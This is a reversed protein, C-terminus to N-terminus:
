YHAFSRNVDFGIVYKSLAETKLKFEYVISKAWSPMQSEFYKIELIFHSKFLLRLGDESFLQNIEPFAKSRINKDLTVRVGPNHKGHYAEREYVVLCTPKLQRSKYHYLFRGADEIAKLPDQGNGRFLFPEVQGTELVEELHRYCIGARHKLIRSGSKKKIELVVEDAPDLRNYGRVRLKRRDMLGSLKEHYYGMDHSDFYISRVTYQYRGRKDEDSYLDPRVFGGFRSRLPDLLYNPVLYKREHRYM